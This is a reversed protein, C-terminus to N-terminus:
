SAKRVVTKAIRTDQQGERDLVDVLWEVDMHPDFVRAGRYRFQEQFEHLVAAEAAKYATRVVETNTMTFQLVWKRCWQTEIEGTDADPADFAIQLYPSGNHERLVFEFNSYLVEALIDELSDMTQLEVDAM